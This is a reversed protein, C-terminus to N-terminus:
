LGWYKTVYDNFKGIDLSGWGSCATWGPHGCAYNFYSMFYSPSTGFTYLPSSDKAFNQYMQPTPLGLANGHASEIRAFLGTFVAAALETGNFLHQEVGGVIIRAGNTPGGPTDGQASVPWNGPISMHADFALDPVYRQTTPPRQGFVGNVVTNVQATQWAPVAEHLSYGAYAYWYDLVDSNPNTDTSTEFWLTEGAWQKASNSTVQSGGIAVVYPSSAPEPPFENGSDIQWNIRNTEGIPAVFIQGQAQAAMFILDDAAQAGTSYASPEWTQWSSEIIKAFDDAVAANYAWILDGYSPQGAQPSMTYFLLSDLGGAAGVITQSEDQASGAGLAADGTPIAVAPVPPLRNNTTFTNLDRITQTMDGATIIAVSTRKGPGVSNANYISAYDLPSYGYNSIPGPPLPTPSHYNSAASEYPETLGLVSEVIGGLASPVQAPTTNGFAPLSSGNPPTVEMMTTNFAKSAEGANGDASVLMFNPAVRIHRFGNQQLYEVVALVQTITPAYTQQFQQHSLYRGYAPNGPQTVNQLFTQLQTLNRLQLTVVLHLPHNTDLPVISSTPACDPAFVFDSSYGDNIEWEPAPWNCDLTPPPSMFAPTATTVWASDAQASLSTMALALAWPLLALHIPRRQKSRTRSAHSM